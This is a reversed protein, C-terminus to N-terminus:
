LDSVSQQQWDLFYIKVVGWRNAIPARVSMKTQHQNEMLVQLTQGLADPLRQPWPGQNLHHQAAGRERGGEAGQAAAQGRTSPCLLRHGPRASRTAGSSGDSNHWLRHCCPSSDPRTHHQAEQQLQVETNPKLHTGDQTVIGKRSRRALIEGCTISGLFYETYIIWGEHHSTKLIFGTMKTVNNRYPKFLAQACRNLNLYIHKWNQRNDLLLFGTEEADFM